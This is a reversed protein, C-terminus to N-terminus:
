SMTRLRSWLRRNSMKPTCRCGTCGRGGSVIPTDTARTFPESKIICLEQTAPHRRKHHCRWIWRHVALKTPSAYGDISPTCRWTGQDLKGHSQRVFRECHRSVTHVRAWWAPTAISWGRVVELEKLWVGNHLCRSRVGGVFVVLPCFNAVVWCRSMYFQHLITTVAREMWVRSDRKSTIWPRRNCHVIFM